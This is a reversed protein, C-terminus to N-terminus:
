PTTVVLNMSTADYIPTVRSTSCGTSHTCNGSYLGDGTNHTLDNNLDIVKDGLNYNGSGDVDVYPEEMDVFLGNETDDYFYNGNLDWFTEQGVTYATITNHTGVLDSFNTTSTWTVTCTGSSNLQCSAASLIGYETYFYVTGSTVAHNQVDGARATVKVEVGGHTTTIPNQPDTNDISIIEPNIEEVGVSFNSAYIINSSSGGPTFGGDSGCGTLLITLVAISYTKFMTKM